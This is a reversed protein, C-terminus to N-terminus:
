SPRGGGLRGGIVVGRRQDAVKPKSKPISTFEYLRRGFDDYIKLIDAGFDANKRARAMTYTKSEESIHGAALWLAVTAAAHLRLKSSQYTNKYILQICSLRFGNGQIHQIDQMDDIIKNAFANICYKEAWFFAKCFQVSINKSGLEDKSYKPFSLIPAKDDNLWDLFHDLVDPEDEPLNMVGLIAEEFNTCFAGRFSSSLECLLKKNVKYTKINPATAIHITVTEEQRATDEQNVANEQRSRSNSHRCPALESLTHV